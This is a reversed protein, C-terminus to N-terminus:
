RAAARWQEKLQDRLGTYFTLDDRAWALYDARTYHMGIRGFRDDPMATLTEVRESHEDVLRTLTAALKASGQSDGLDLTM